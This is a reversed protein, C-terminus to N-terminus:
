FLIIVHFFFIVCSFSELLAFRIVCFCASIFWCFSIVSFLVSLFFLLFFLLSPFFLLLHLLLVIPIVINFSNVIGLSIIFDVFLFCGFLSFLM